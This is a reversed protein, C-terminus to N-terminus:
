LRAAGLQPQASSRSRSVWCTVVSSCDRTSGDAVGTM